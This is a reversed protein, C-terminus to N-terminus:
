VYSERLRELIVEKPTGAIKGTFIMRLNKTESEKAILYAAAPEFGFSVYKADKIYEIRKNDCLKELLSYMGTEKVNNGGKEIIEGFGYPKFKEALKHYNEEYGSTFLKESIHGGELFVKSFFTWPKGIQRLRIFTIVNLIDILLKVYNILFSNQTVTASKLMQEYCAKDLIIDIEQPDGGKGFLEAAREVAEKMETHMFVFNRERIMSMMTKPEFNGGWTMYKEPDIGLFEAKLVAKANHYDKPYKFLELESPDPLSSFVFDYAKQEEEALMKVFDRPKEPAKGSGYGNETLVSMARDFDPAEAARTLESWPILTRESARILTSCFIYSDERNKSM